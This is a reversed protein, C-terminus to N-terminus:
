TERMLEAWRRYFTRQGIESFFRGFRGPMTPHTGDHGLGMQYNAPYTRAVRGRATKTIQSWIEADDQEFTGAPGFQNLYVKCVTERVEKPMGKEVVCWSWVEMKDPGKPHWVRITNYAFLNLWSFNPFVNGDTSLLTLLYGAREKGLHKEMKERVGWLYSLYAIMDQPIEGWSVSKGAEADFVTLNLGHGNGPSIQWGKSPVDALLGLQFAFGHVFSLHVADGIFNDAALKWNADMTWKHTGPLVEIGDETRDFMMDLYWRMDGLYEELSAAGADFTGFILGKYSAVKAVPILGWAERNLEERYGEKFEPVTVLKGQNSYTWGHYPCSMFNANGEDMRCVKMGRHRCSNIFAGIKGESDRWLIVPDEGMYTTLYDGPKPIQTEHGLYLWCRAFIRELELEYIEEDAFVRRTVLGKDMQVLSDVDVAM